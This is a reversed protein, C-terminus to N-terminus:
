TEERKKGRYTANYFGNSGEVKFGNKEYAEILKDGKFYVVVEAWGVSNQDDHEVWSLDRRCQSVADGAEQLYSKLQEAQQQLRAEVKRAYKLAKGSVPPIKAEM